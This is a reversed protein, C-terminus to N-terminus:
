ADVDAGPEQEPEMTDGKSDVPKRIDAVSRKPYDTDLKVLAAKFQDATLFERSAELKALKDNRVINAKEIEAMAASTEVYDNLGARIDDFVNIFKDWAEPAKSIWFGRDGHSGKVSATVRVLGDSMGKNAEMHLGDATDFTWGTPVFAQKEGTNRPAM